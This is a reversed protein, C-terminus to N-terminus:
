LAEKDVFQKKALIVQNDPFSAPNNAFDELRLKFGGVIQTRINKIIQPMEKNLSEAAKKADDSDPNADITKFAEKVKGEGALDDVQAFFGLSRQPTISQLATASREIKSVLANLGGSEKLKKAM